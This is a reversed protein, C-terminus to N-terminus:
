CLMNQRLDKVVAAQSRLRRYIMYGIFILLAIAVWAQKNRNHDKKYLALFDDINPTVSEPM